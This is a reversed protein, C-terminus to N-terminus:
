LSSSKDDDESKIEVPIQHLREMEGIEEELDHIFIEAEGLNSTKQRMWISIGESIHDKYTKLYHSLVKKPDEEVFRSKILERKLIDVIITAEVMHKNTIRDVISVLEEVKWKASKGWDKTETKEGDSPSASRNIILFPRDRHYKSLAM